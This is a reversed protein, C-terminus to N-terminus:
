WFAGDTPYFDADLDSFNLPASNPLVPQILPYTNVETPAPLTLSRNYGFGAAVGTVFCVPPGGLPAGLFGYIFVTSVGDPLKAYSAMAALSYKKYGINLTGNYADIPVMSVVGTSPDRVPVDIEAEMFLGELSLPPKQVSIGMGKLSISPDFSDLPSSIDFGIFDLELPGLVLGGTFKIEIDGGSLGLGASDIKIPGYKKAVPTANHPAQTTSPNLQGGNKVKTSSPPNTFVSHLPITEAHDGIVLNGQLSFGKPFSVQSKGKNAVSSQAITLPAVDITALYANLLQLQDNTIAASAYTIRLGDFSFQAEKLFSGVVPMHSLNIDVGISLDTGFVSFKEITNTGITAQVLFVNKIDMSVPLSGLSLSAGSTSFINGGFLKAKRSVGAITATTKNLAGVFVYPYTTASSSDGLTLKIKIEISESSGSQDTMKDLEFSLEVNGIVPIVASPLDFDAFLDGPKIPGPINIKVITAFAKTTKSGRSREYAMFITVDSSLHIASIGISTFWSTLTTMDVDVNMSFSMGHKGMGVEMDKLSLGSKIGNLASIFPNTAM